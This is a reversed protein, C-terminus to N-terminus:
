EANSQMLEVCCARQRLDGHQNTHTHTHARAHAHKRTHTYWSTYKTVWYYLRNVYAHSPEVQTTYTGLNQRNLKCCWPQQGTLYTSLPVDLIQGAEDWPFVVDSWNLSARLSWHNTCFPTESVGYVCFINGVSRPMCVSQVWRVCMCEDSVCARLVCVAPM